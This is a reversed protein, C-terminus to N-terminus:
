YGSCKRLLLAFAPQGRRGEHLVWGYRYGHQPFNLEWVTEYDEDLREHVWDADLNLLHSPHPNTFANHQPCCIALYGGPKVAADMRCLAEDPDEVHDLSNTSLVLDFEELYDMDEAKMDVHHPCPIVRQYDPTLPDVVARYRCRILDSVPQPGGGVELVRMSDTGLKDLLLDRILGYHRIRERKFKEARKVPDEILWSAIEAELADLYDSV